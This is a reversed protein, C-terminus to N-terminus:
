RRRRLYVYYAGGGGHRRHAPAIQLVMHAMGGQRLWDPVQHRLAGFREPIPGGSDRDKGKGTIVLILRLGKAYSESVFRNLAPHAQALTMGHLDIRAEPAKKGRKLNQFAKKDMEVPANSLQDAIPAATDLTSKQGSAKAGIRFYEPRAPAPAPKKAPAPPARDPDARFLLTGKEMPTVTSATQEWLAKDDDSLGRRGRRAM